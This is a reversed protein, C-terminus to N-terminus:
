KGFRKRWERVAEADRPTIDPYEPDSGIDASIKWSRACKKGEARKPMVSVAEGGEANRFAEAPGQGEALEIASTICVEAFDVSQLLALM